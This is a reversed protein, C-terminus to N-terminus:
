AKFAASVLCWYGLRKFANKSYEKWMKMAPVIQDIHLFPQLYRHAVLENIENM